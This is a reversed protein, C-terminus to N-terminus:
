QPFYNVRYQIKSLSFVNLLQFLLGFYVEIETSPYPLDDLPFLILSPSFIWPPSSNPYLSFTLSFILAPLSFFLPSQLPVSLINQFELQNKLNSSASFFQSHFLASLSEFGQQASAGLWSEGTESGWHSQRHFPSVSVDQPAGTFTSKGHKFTNARLLQDM